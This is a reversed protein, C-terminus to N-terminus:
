RGLLMPTHMDHMPSDGGAALGGDAWGSAAFLGAFARSAGGAAAAVSSTCTLTGASGTAGAARGLSAATGAASAVATM